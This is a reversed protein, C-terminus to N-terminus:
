PRFQSSRRLLRRRGALFAETLAAALATDGVMHALRISDTGREHAVRAPHDAPLVALIETVAAKEEDDRTDPPPRDVPPRFM